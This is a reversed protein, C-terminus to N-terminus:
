KLGRCVLYAERSEKRSAEPKAWKVDRFKNQVVDRRWKESLDSQLVKMVLIKAETKKGDSEAATSPHMYRSALDLALDCLDLSAQADALGNGTVNGLIDSLMVDVKAGALAQEIQQLTAEQRVDGQIAHVQSARAGVFVRSDMRKIDVAIIKGKGQLKEICVQTWGGPAAGLELVCVGPRLLGRYKSDLELLKHASRAVYNRREAGAASGLAKSPDGHVKNNTLKSIRFPDREARALWRASSASRAKSSLLPAQCPRM